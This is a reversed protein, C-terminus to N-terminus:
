LTYFGNMINRTPNKFDSSVHINDSVMISERSQRYGDKYAKGSPFVSTMHQTKDTGSWNFFNFGYIPRVNDQTPLILEENARAQVKNVLQYLGSGKM